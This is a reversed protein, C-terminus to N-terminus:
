VAVPSRAEAVIMEYTCLQPSKVPPFVGSLKPRSSPYAVSDTEGRDEDVGSPSATLATETLPIRLPFPPPHSDIHSVDSM